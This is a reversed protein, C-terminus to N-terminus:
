LHSAKVTLTLHTVIAETIRVVLTGVLMNESKQEKLYFVMQKLSFKVCIIPWCDIDHADSYLSSM